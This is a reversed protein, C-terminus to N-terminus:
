ILKEHHQSFWLATWIQWNIVLVLGMVSFLVFLSVNLNTHLLKINM